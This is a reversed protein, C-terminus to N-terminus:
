QEAAGDPHVGTDAGPDTATETGESDPVTSVVRETAIDIIRQEIARLEDEPLKAIDEYQQKDIFLGMGKFYSLTTPVDYEQLNVILSELALPYLEILPMRYNDISIKDGIFAQVRDRYKAVTNRHLGLRKATETAPLKAMQDAWCAIEEATLPIKRRTRQM